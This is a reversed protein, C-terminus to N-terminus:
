HILNLLDVSKLPGIRRLKWTVLRSPEGRNTSDATRLANLIQSTLTKMQSVYRVIHLYQLYLSYLCNICTLARVADLRDGNQSAKM